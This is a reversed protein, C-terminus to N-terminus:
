GGSVEAFSRQRFAEFEPWTMFVGDKWCGTRNQHWGNLAEIKPNKSPAHQEHGQARKCRGTAHRDHCRDATAPWVDGQVKGKLM